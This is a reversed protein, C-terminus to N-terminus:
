VIYGNECLKNHKKEHENGDLKSQNLEDKTNSMHKLIVIISLYHWPLDFYSLSLFAGGSFYALLSVKLMKVLDSIWHNQNTKEYKKILGNCYKWGLFFQLLFLFLGVWGHEGLVSFYISHAVFATQRLPDFSDLYTTYTVKNWLNLGGGMINHNAVNFALQWAYIRGMASGDEQYTNITNMREYWSEPLFAAILMVFVVFILFLILKNKSQLWYYGAVVSIALFAGRSQSGLVSIGMSIICFLMIQRQWQKTLQTRLYIMIPIVMLSAVALANNEAIFSDQPGYVQFGGGTLVTFIGGKFGYFGISFVIVWLLQNIREKTNFMMMTVFVPLQIKLIKIYQEEAMDPAFAFITTIGMWGIYFIMLYVIIDKPLSKNEKSFLLMVMTLLITVQAFPMSYAFGYCLRHPNMYGLWAWLLIGYHPRKITYIWGTLMILTVFIDRMAKNIGIVWLM